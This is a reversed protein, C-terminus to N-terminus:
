KQSTEWLDLLEGVVDDFTSTPNRKEAIMQLLLLKLKAHNQESVRVTKM